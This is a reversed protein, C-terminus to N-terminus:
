ILFSRREFYINLFVYVHWLCKPQVFNMLSLIRSVKPSTPQSLLSFNVIPPQWWKEGCSTREQHFLISYAPPTSIKQRGVWSTFSDFVLVVTFLKTSWVQVCSNINVLIVFEWEKGFNLLSFEPYSYICVHQLLAWLYIM